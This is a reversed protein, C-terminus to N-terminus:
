AHLPLSIVTEFLYRGKMNMAANNMIAQVHFSDLHGNVSSYLFHSMYINKM